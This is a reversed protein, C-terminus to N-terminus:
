KKHSDNQKAHLRGFEGMIEVFLTLFYLVLCLQPHIETLHHCRSNYPRMRNLSKMEKIKFCLM